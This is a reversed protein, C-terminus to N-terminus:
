RLAAANGIRFTKLAVARDHDRGRWSVAVEVDFLTAATPPSQWTTVPTVRLRWRYGGGDDGESEGPMLAVDAGLAALHSRAREVAEEARAATDVAVLGDGGARFLAVLALGAIALAVLVELLTFGSDRSASM